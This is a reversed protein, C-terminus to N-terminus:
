GVVAILAAAGAGATWALMFFCLRMLAADINSGLWPRDGSLDPSIAGEEPPFVYMKM